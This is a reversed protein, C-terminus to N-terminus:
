PKFQGLLLDDVEFPCLWRSGNRKDDPISLAVSPRLRLLEGKARPENRHRFGLGRQHRAPDHCLDLAARGRPPSFGLHRPRAILPISRWALRGTFDRGHFREEDHEGTEPNAEPAKVEHPVACPHKACFGVVDDSATDNEDASEHVVPFVRSTPLSEALFFGRPSPSRAALAIGRLDPFKDAHEDQPCNTGCFAWRVGESGPGEAPLSGLPQFLFNSATATISGQRDCRRIWHNKQLRLIHM